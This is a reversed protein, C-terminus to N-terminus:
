FAEVCAVYCQAGRYHRGAGGVLANCPAAAVFIYGGDIATEDGQQASAFCGDGGSCEVAVNGCTHVEGYCLRCADVCWIGVVGLVIFHALCQFVALYYDNLVVGYQINVTLDYM